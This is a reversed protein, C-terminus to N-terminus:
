FADKFRKDAGNENTLKRINLAHQILCMMYAQISKRELKGFIIYVQLFLNM